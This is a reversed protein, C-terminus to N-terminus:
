REEGPPRPVPHQPYGQGEPSIQSLPRLRPLLPELRDRNYLRRNCLCRNDPYRHDLLFTL